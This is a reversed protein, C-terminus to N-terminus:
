CGAITASPAPVTARPARLTRQPPRSIRDEGDDDDVRQLDSPGYRAEEYADALRSAEAPREAVVGVRRSWERATEGSGDPVRTWSALRRTKAWMRTRPELGALGWNWATRGAFAAAAVVIAAGILSWILTWPPGENEIPTENLANNANDLGSNVAGTGFLDALNPFQETPDGTFPGSGAFAGNAAVTPKNATPNFEVWGYQPFFVEVWSYADDKRVTYTTDVHEKDDLAYGVAVRAPIGLTRLMVAMATSQYDFYGTKLDFLLYEVVDKGPPPAPVQFNFPFGRLYEELLKAKDYNNAAGSTVRQAEAVVAPSYNKPLQLYRQAICDPYNAGDAQLQEPTAASTSGLSNYTDGSNLGRRTTLQELEGPCGPPSEANSSVNTGLPTGQSLVASDADVATVQLVAVKREAYQAVQPSAALTGGNIRTEDQDGTKWGSGTYTDYSAGRIFGPQAAKVEYLERTGLKVEGQIPLFAGFNHLRGGNAADVNHFLRNFLGSHGTFPQAVADYMGEVAKASGGTPIAWAAM